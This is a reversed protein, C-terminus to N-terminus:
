ARPKRLCPPRDRYRRAFPVYVMCARGEGAGVCVEECIRYVRQHPRAETAGTRTDVIRDYAGRSGLDSEDASHVSSPLLPPAGAAWMGRRAAQAERQLAVLRPDPPADVAFVMADGARVLAEAVEPCTALLRQYVDRREEITCRVTAAAAEAAARKAVAFLGWGDDGGWRHVPGYSELANVGVLRASSGAHRGSLIRFTDGDTWRIRASEGDLAVVARAPSSAHPAQAAAPAALAALLCGLLARTM